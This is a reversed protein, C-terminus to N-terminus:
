VCVAASYEQKSEQRETPPREKPTEKADPADTDVIRLVSGTHKTGGISTTDNSGTTGNVRNSSKRGNSGNTPTEEEVADAYSKPPLNNEKREAPNAPEANLPATIPAAM